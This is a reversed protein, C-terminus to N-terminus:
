GAPGAARGRIELAFITGPGADGRLCLEADLERALQRALYLGLGAGGEGQARGADGREFPEFIREREDDPIAPGDNAVEIVITDGPAGSVRIHIDVGTTYRVANDILERVLRELLDAECHLPVPVPPVDAVLLLGRGVAPTRHGRVVEAVIDRCDILAPVGRAARSQLRAVETVQETVRLMEAASTLLLNLQRAQAEPDPPGTSLKRLMMRALGMIGNLPGRLEHGLKALVPGAPLPSSGNM